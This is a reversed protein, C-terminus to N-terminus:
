LEKILEGFDNYIEFTINDYEIIKVYTQKHGCYGANALCRIPKIYGCNKKCESQGELMESHDCIRTKMFM